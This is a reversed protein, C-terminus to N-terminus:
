STHNSIYALCPFFFFFSAGLGKSGCIVLLFQREAPTEYQISCIMTMNNVLSSTTLTAKSLHTLILHPKNPFSVLFRSAKKLGFFSIGPM